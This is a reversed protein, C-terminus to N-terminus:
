KRGQKSNWIAASMPVALSVLGATVAAKKHGSEWLKKTAIMGGGSALAKLTIRGGRSGMIPNGERTGGRGLAQETTILDALNAAPIAAILVKAKKSLSENPKQPM